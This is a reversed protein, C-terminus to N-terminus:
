QRGKRIIGLMKEVVEDIGMATSDIIISDESPKLPAITRTRDQEDRATLDKRIKEVDASCDEGKIELYRRRSREDVSADLFFKFDARPFVVTGMDRGEAVISGRKGIQRQIPLLCSRVEPRASIRSALMGIEMTRIKGTVDENDVFVRIEKGWKKVSISTRACLDFLNGISAAGGEKLVRYALARYLAGTDLYTFSLRSALLKGVTSKGAGAPGDITIVM